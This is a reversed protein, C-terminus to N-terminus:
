RCYWTGIIAAILLATFLLASIYFLLATFILDDKEMCSNQPHAPEYLISVDANRSLCRRTWYSVCVHGTGDADHFLIRCHRNSRAGDKEIMKRDSTQRLSAAKKYSSLIESLVACLVSAHDSVSTHICTDSLCYRRAYQSINCSENRDFVSCFIFDSLSSEYRKNRRKLIRSIIM